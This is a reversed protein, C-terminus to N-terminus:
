SRAYVDSSAQSSMSGATAICSACCCLSGADPSTQRANMTMKAGKLTM